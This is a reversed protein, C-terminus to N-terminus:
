EEVEDDAPIEEEDDTNDAPEDSDEPITEEPVDTEEPTDTESLEIDETEEPATTVVTGSSLQRFVKDNFEIVTKTPPDTTFDIEMELFKATEGTEESTVNIAYNTVESGSVKWLLEKSLSIDRIETM